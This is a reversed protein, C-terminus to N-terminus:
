MNYDYQQMDFSKDHKKLKCQIFYYAYEGAKNQRLGIFACLYM